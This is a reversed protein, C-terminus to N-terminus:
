TGPRAVAETVMDFVSLKPEYGLVSRAKSSSVYWSPRVAEYRVEVVELGLAAGLSEVLQRESHPAVPGINFAEGVAEPRKIMLRMAAAVDRADTIMTLSPVGDPDTLLLLKEGPDDIDRLRDLLADEAPSRPHTDLWEIASHLFWRRGFPSSPDVLERPRATATPRMVTYPVGYTRWFANCMAEAGIKTAGYVSGAM